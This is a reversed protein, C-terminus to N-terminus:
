IAAEAFLLAFHQALCHKCFGYAAGKCTIYSSSPCIALVPHGSPMMPVYALAESVGPCVADYLYTYPSCRIEGLVYTGVLCQRLTCDQGAAVIYGQAPMSNLLLLCRLVAAVKEAQQLTLTVQQIDKASLAPWKM